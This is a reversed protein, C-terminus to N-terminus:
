QRDKVQTDGEEGDEEREFFEGVRYESSLDLM